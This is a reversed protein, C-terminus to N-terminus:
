RTGATTPAGARSFFHESSGAAVGDTVHKVTRGPEAAGDTADMQTNTM